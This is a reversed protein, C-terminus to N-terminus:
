GRRLARATPNIDPLYGHALARVTSPPTLVQVVASSRAIPEGYGEFSWPYLRNGLVLYPVDSAELVVFAGDPLRDLQEQYTLKTKDRQYFHDSIRERHLATDIV